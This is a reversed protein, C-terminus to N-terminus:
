VQPLKEVFRQIHDLYLPIRRVALPLAEYVREPDIDDYEHGIRNRLGAAMALEKALDAKMVGLTGLLVFSEHYDKPPAHGSETILHFNVDIMRGIARELYREALAENISDKLYQERSLQSLRTMAAVDELILSMKRTILQRDIM